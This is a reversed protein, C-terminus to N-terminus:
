FDGPQRKKKEGLGLRNIASFIARVSARTINSSVGVGHTTHGTQSDLLYIYAAAQSDSGAQLAHENYDLIKIQMDTNEMLRLGAGVTSCYNSGTFKITLGSVSRNHIAYNGGGTREMNLGSITLTKSSPDYRVSAGSNIDKGTVNNYNSTSVEVGGVNIGYDSAQVALVCLLPLAFALLIKKM